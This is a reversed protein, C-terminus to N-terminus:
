SRPHKFIRNDRGIATNQNISRAFVAIALGTGYRINIMPFGGNKIIIYPFIFVACGFWWGVPVIHRKCTSPCGTGTSKADTIAVIIGYNASKASCKIIAFLEFNYIFRFNKLGYNTHVIIITIYHIDVVNFYGSNIHNTTWRM